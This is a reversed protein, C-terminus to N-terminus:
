YRGVPLLVSGNNRLFQLRLQRRRAKKFRDISALPLKKPQTPEPLKEKVEELTYPTGDAKLLKPANQDFQALKRELKAMALTRFQKM